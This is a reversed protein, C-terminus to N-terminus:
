FWDIDYNIPFNHTQRAALLVKFFIEIKEVSAIIRRRSQEAEFAYVIGQAERHGLSAYVRWLMILRSFEQDNLHGLENSPFDTSM